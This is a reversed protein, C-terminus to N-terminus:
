VRRTRARARCARSRRRGHACGSRMAGLALALGAGASAPVLTGRAGVAGLMMTLDATSRNSGAASTEVLALEGAGYGALAWATVRESLRVRAYPLVSILTSEITGGDFASDTAAGGTLAFAGEGTSYSVAAGALWAGGAADAGVFGTTVRGDM